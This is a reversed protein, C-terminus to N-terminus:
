LFMPKYIILLISKSALSGGGIEKRQDVVSPVFSKFKVALRVDNCKINRLGEVFYPM